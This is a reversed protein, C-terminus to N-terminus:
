SPPESEEAHELGASADVWDPSGRVIGVFSPVSRELLALVEDPSLVPRKTQLAMVVLADAVAPASLYWQDVLFDDPSEVMIGLEALDPGSFHRINATVIVDARGALAAAVVHRDHDPVSEPVAALRARVQADSVEADEFAFRMAAIRKSIREEEIEPHVRIISRKTEELIQGSWVPRFLGHEAILLQLQCLAWPHLVCADLLASYV